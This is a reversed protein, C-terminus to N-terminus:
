WAVSAVLARKPRPNGQRVKPRGEILVDAGVQRISLDDLAISQSIRATALGEIAGVGAGVIKPAVFFAARDIIGAALAAGALHAGGEFLIKNWGRRGFERAMSALDIGAGKRAVAIVEVRPGAYRRRARVLNARTTVIIAGAASAETLALAVPSIRLRAEVIVRIPDRGGAIRCTLRPNDALVTGAGVIVADCERRWRHVLARSEKSSIWKSDGSAAAIRGDLSMALKLLGFPRGRAVRTFFGENLASCEDERVGVVVEIGARRLIAAGRGRVAPYRDVCGIVVRAVGAKELARACPPTKGQHACPELSVYATAGRARVGAEALAVAEAHPRGGAATAGRGVIKGARVLVCGVSPNPSTLGLQSRALGLAIAMFRRDRSRQAASAAEAIM